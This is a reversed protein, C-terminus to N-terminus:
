RGGGEAPSSNTSGTAKDVLERYESSAERLRGDWEPDPEKDAVAEHYTVMMYALAFPEFLAEMVSWTAAIAVLLLGVHVIASEVLLMVGVAPALFLMFVGFWVVKGILWVLAATKLIPKYSQAYLLVGERTHEWLDDGGHAIAYSLIAEDVYRAARNAIETLVRVVNDAGGPLPIWDAVSLVTRQLSKLIGKVLQDLGFLMSVDQFKSQVIRRGYSFQGEGDPLEGDTLLRTMVAIQGGKVLYLLYRRAFKILGGWAAFAIILCIVSVLGLEMTAALYAGGGWLAFWVLSVLFFGGYVLANIGIYPLTEGVLSLARRWASKEM